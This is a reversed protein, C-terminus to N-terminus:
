EKGQKLVVKSITTYHIKMHDAIEAYIAITNSNTGNPDGMLLYGTFIPFIPSILIKTLFSSLSIASFTISPCPYDHRGQSFSRCGM